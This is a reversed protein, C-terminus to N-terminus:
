RGRERRVFETLGGLVRARAQLYEGRGGFLTAHRSRFDYRAPPSAPRNAFEMGFAERAVDAVSVPETAFNVLTLGNALATEIDRWLTDLGYFQFVSDAHVQSVNNDHLFDFVINKKIGTGFLGPLRVVLTDFREQVFRELAYRHRGYSQGGDPDIPTAEDVEIPTPYVDVTSVLIVKRASARELADTLTALRARDEAPWAINSVALRM